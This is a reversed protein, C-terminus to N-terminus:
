SSEKPAAVIAAAIGAILGALVGLRLPLDRALLSVLGAVCAGLLVPRSRLTPALVAVLALIGAIELQWSAPIVAAGFIGALSGVQWALWNASVGGWYFAQVHREGPHQELHSLLRLFTVDGNFYGLLLRRGGPEAAFLKGLTASYVTFRLNIVVATLLIIWWAAGGALLPLTALQASGAYAALSVVVSATEGLGMKVMAVGTVLGWALVGPAANLMDRFGAQYAAKQAITFQRLPMWQM